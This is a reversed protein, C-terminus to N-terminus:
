VSKRLWPGTNGFSLPRAFSYTRGEGDYVEWGASNEHAVVELTDSRAIWDGGKRVLEMPKGNLSVRVRERSVPPVNPQSSPRSRAFSRDVTIYSLPVDWGLGAAGVGHVTYAVQFPIPLEGRAPPLDLPVSEAVTGTASVFTGGYGTDTPRGAYHEGTPALQGSANTAITIALLSLAIKLSASM